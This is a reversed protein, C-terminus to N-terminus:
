NIQPQISLKFYYIDQLLVNKQICHHESKIEITYFANTKRIGPEVLM